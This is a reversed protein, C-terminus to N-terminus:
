FGWWLDVVGGSGLYTAGSANVLADVEDGPKFVALPQGNSVAAERLQSSRVLLSVTGAGWAGAGEFTRWEGRVEWRIGDSENRVSLRFSKDSLLELQGSTRPGLWEHTGLVSAPPTPTTACAAALVLFAM